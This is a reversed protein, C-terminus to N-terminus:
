GGEPAAGKEALHASLAKQRAAQTQGLFTERQANMWNWSQLQPAQQFQFAPMVARAFIEYSRFRAETDAWDHDMILFAGFGGSQDILEQIRHAAMAPTGIVGYGTRNIHEITQEVTDADSGRTFTGAARAYSAWTSLGYHVDAQAQELTEALHMPGVLRWKRRDVSTGFREAQEQVIQWTNQLFQFGSESTATVGLLGIGFRGAARPGSPSAVAAVAVDFCPFQYPRLHLKAEQLTFWDTKRSVPADKALLAMIAELSEEMMRRQETVEIGMMYADSPLAGPGVGLMTRGKTLHDLFVMRDAVILPHHYCLSTVGTGLRIHRTREAAAALFIEPAAIMEWGGSHHEGIWAEDFGLRDLHVMLDLDRQILLTPNHGAPHFPALFIGFRLPWDM